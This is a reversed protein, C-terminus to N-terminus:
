VRERCSARGIEYNEPEIVKEKEIKYCYDFSKIWEKREKRSIRETLLTLVTKADGLIGVDVPIIKGIESEDIDIHVVKAQRAYTDVTGTVRDDFRMGVAILVDCENTKINPAINGHM